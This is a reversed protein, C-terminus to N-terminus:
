GLMMKGELPASFVFKVAHGTKRKGEGDAIQKWTAIAIEAHIEQAAAGELDTGQVKEDCPRPV